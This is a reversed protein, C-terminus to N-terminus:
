DDEARVCLVESRLAPVVTHQGDSAKTLRICVYMHRATGAPAMPMRRTRFARLVLRTEAEAEAEATPKKDVAYVCM